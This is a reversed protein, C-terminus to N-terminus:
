TYSYIYSKQMCGQKDILGFMVIILYCCKRENELLNFIHKLISFGEVQGSGSDNDFADKKIKKYLPVEPPLLM